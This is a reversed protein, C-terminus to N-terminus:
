ANVPPRWRRIVNFWIKFLIYVPNFQSLTAVPTIKQARHHVRRNCFIRPTDQSASYSGAKGPVCREQHEAVSLSIQLLDRTCRLVDFAVAKM